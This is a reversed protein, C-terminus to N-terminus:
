PKVVEKCKALCEGTASHVSCSYTLAAPRTDGFLAILARDNIKRSSLYREAMATVDHELPSEIEVEVMTQGESSVVVACQLATLDPQLLLASAMGENSRSGGFYSEARQTDRLLSDASGQLQQWLELERLYAARKTKFEAIAISRARKNAKECDVREKDYRMKLEKCLNEHAMEAQRFLSQKEALFDRKMFVGLLKEVWNVLYKKDNASPAQPYVLLDPKRNFHAANPSPKQPPKPKRAKKYARCV